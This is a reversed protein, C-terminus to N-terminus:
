AGEPLSNGTTLGKVPEGEVQIEVTPVEAKVEPEPAAESPKPESKAAAKKPADASIRFVTNHELAKAIEETIELRELPEIIRGLLPCSLRFDEPNHLWPM